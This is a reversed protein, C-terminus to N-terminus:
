LLHFLFIFYYPIRNYYLNNFYQILKINIYIFMLKNFGEHEKLKVSDYEKSIMEHEQQKKEEFDQQNKKLHTVQMKLLKIENEQNAIKGLLDSRESELFAISETTYKLKNELVERVHKLDDNAIEM